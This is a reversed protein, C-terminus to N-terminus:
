RVEITSPVSVDQKLESKNSPLETNSSSFHTDIATQRVIKNAQARTPEVCNFEDESSVEIVDSENGEPFDNEVMTSQFSPSFVTRAELPTKSEKLQKIIRPTDVSRNLSRKIKPTLVPTGSHTVAVSITNFCFLMCIM